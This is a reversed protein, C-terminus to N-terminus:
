GHYTVWHKRIDIVTARLEDSVFENAGVAALATDYLSQKVEYDAAAQWLYKLAARKCNTAAALGHRIFPSASVYAEDCLVYFNRADDSIPYVAMERFRTDVVQAAVKLSCDFVNTFRQCYKFYIIPAHHDYLSTPKVPPVAAKNASVITEALGSLRAAVWEGPRAPLNHEREYNRFATLVKPWVAKHAVGHSDKGGDWKHRIRTHAPADWDLVSEKIRIYQYRIYAVLQHDTLQRYWDPSLLSDSVKETQFIGGVEKLTM